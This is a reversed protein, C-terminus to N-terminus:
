FRGPRLTVLLKTTAFPNPKRTTVSAASAPDRQSFFSVAFSATSQIIQAPLYSSQKWGECEGLSGGQEEGARGM